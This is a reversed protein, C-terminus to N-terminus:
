AASTRDAPQRSRQRHLAFETINHQTVRGGSGRSQPTAGSTAATSTAQDCFSRLTGTSAGATACWQALGDHQGRGGDPEDGGHWHQPALHDTACTSPAAVLRSARSLHGLEVGHRKPSASAPPSLALMPRHRRDPFAATKIRERERGHKYCTPNCALRAAHKRRHLRVGGLSRRRGLSALWV